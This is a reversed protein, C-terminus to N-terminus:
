KGDKGTGQGNGRKPCFKSIHGPENCTYCKDSRFQRQSSENGRGGRAYSNYGGRGRMGGRQAMTKALAETREDTVAARGKNLNAQLKVTNLGVQSAYAIFLDDVADELTVWVDPLTYDEIQPAMCAFRQIRKLAHNMTADFHRAPNPGSQMDHKIAVVLDTAHKNDLYYMYTKPNTWVFKLEDNALSPAMRGQAMEFQLQTYGPPLPWPYKQRTSHMVICDGFLDCTDHIIKGDPTSFKIVM